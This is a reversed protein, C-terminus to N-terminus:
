PKVRLEAAASKVATAAAPARWLASASGLAGAIVTAAKAWEGIIPSVALAGAVTALAFLAWAIKDAEKM